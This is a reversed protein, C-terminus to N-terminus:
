PAPALHLVDVRPPMAFRVPLGVMGTGTTVFVQGFRSQHLGDYWPQRMTHQLIKTTIYPLNVQGGHTHGAVTLQATHPPMLSATDPQHTLVIRNREPNPPLAAIQPQPRGGWLDDLGSLQWGQWLVTKGELPQVGHQRLATRLAVSLKPGPKEVDHNGLVAFVPAKLQALPSFGAVLDLKPEYTWDGAVMIADVDLTNLHNVL